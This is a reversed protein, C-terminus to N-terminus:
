FNIATAQAMPLYQLTTFFMATALLMVGARMLQAMVNRSRVIKWGRSPVVLGLTVLLHVTYRVWVLILVPVGAGMVWKGSADLTSLCWHSILIFAIASLPQGIPLPQKLM